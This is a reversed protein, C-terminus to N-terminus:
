RLKKIKRGLPHARGEETPVLFVGQVGIVEGASTTIPMKSVQVHRKKGSSLDINLESKGAIQQRNQMVQLDDERYADALDLPYFDYDRLGIVEDPSKGLSAAFHTNVFTFRGSRDKQFVSVPLTEVLSRYIRQSEELRKRAQWASIAWAALKALPTLREIHYPTVPVAGRSWCIMVGVVRNSYLLPLGLLPGDIQFYKLGEPNVLPDRAPTTSFLDRRNKLIWTAASQDTYNYVWKKPDQALHECGVSAECTLKEEDDRAIYIIGRDFLFISKATELLNALIERVSEADESYDLIRQVVTGILTEEDAIQVAIAAYKALLLLLDRDDADFANQQFSEVSLVGIPRGASTFRVALESKTSPHSQYYDAPRQRVDGTVLYNEKAVWASRMFSREPVPARLHITSASTPGAIARMILDGKSADWLAFDGRDAGLLRICKTLIHNLITDLHTSEQLTQLIGHLTALRRITEIILVAKRAFILGLLEDAESFAPNERINGNDGKKNEVLLIGILRTKRDRLAM